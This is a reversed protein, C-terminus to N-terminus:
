RVLNRILLEKLENISLWPRKRHLIRHCNACVLAIDEVKTEENEGMESIPKTHHGEIYGEGIEGYHEKFDFDCIECFLKGHLTLFREKARKIVEQNRERVLHQKLKLKGEPFGEDDETLGIRDVENLNRIIERLSSNGYELISSVETNAIGKGSVVSNKFDIGIDSLYVPNSFKQFDSLIICGIEDTNKDTEFMKNMRMIFREKNDDGNANKYRDWADEVKLVEYREFTAKGLVAREGSAGTENKVLFFFPEGKILVNFSATNKRWFNVVNLSEKISIYNFWERTTVGIYGKM